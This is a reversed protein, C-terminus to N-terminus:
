IERNQLEKKVLNIKLLLQSQKVRDQIDQWQTENLRGSMQSLELFLAEIQDCIERAKAMPIKDLQTNIFRKSSVLDAARQSPFEKKWVAGAKDPPTQAFDLLLYQSRELYSLTERRAVELEAKDLFDGSAAYAPRPVPNLWGAKFVGFMALGGLFLGALLYAMAPRFLWGLVPRRAAPRAGRSARARSRDEAADAIRLALKEWDVTDMVRDGDRKRASAADLLRKLRAEEAQCSPCDKLHTMLVEREGPDIEGSLTDVLRRRDPHRTTM